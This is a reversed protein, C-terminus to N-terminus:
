GAMRITALFRRARERPQQEGISLTERCRVHLQEGTSDIPGLGSLVLLSGLVPKPM